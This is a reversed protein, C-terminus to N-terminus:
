AAKAALVERAARLVGATDIGHLADKEGGESILVRYQAGHPIWEHEGKHTRFWAVAPAGSMMALHLTGTDGSLNLASKEIVAALADVELTGAFVRWPPERLLLLLRNLKSRERDNSACSVVVRLQPHAARLGTIIQAVQEAPLEREDATTFPSVHVYRGEDTAGIGAARRLAPDLTVHFEPRDGDHGLGANRLCNWKQVYMPDEYHPHEMVQTFLLGWGPPGGDAPRRGLRAKARTAWTIMSSRDSGTTNIAVDFRERRLEGAWRFSQGLGPKPNSPYAWVRDVWPAVKFLNAVHANAMVHLQAGPWQRRVLWLAPLLHVNDGLGALEMVLVRQAVAPVSL